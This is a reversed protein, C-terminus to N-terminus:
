TENLFGYVIYGVLRSVETTVFENIRSRPIKKETKIIEIRVIEWIIHLQDQLNTTYENM